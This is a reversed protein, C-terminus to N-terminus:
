TQSDPILGTLVSNGPFSGMRAQGSPLRNRCSGRVGSRDAGRRAQGPPLGTQLSACPRNTPLGANRQPLGLPSSAKSHRHYHLFERGVPVLGAAAVGNGVGTDHRHVVRAGRLEGEIGVLGDAREGAAAHPTILVLAWLLVASRIITAFM